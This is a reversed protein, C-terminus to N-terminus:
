HIHYPLCLNLSVMTRIGSAKTLPSRVTQDTKMKLGWLFSSPSIPIPTQYLMKVRGDKYYITEFTVKGASAPLTGYMQYQEIVLKDTDAYYYTGGVYKQTNYDYSQIFPINASALYGNPYNPSPMTPRVFYLSDPPQLRLAADGLWNAYLTQYTKGFFPFAFKMKLPQSVISSPDLLTKTGLGNAAIEFWQYAASSSDINKHISYTHASDLGNGVGKVAQNM